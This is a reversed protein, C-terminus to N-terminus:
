LEPLCGLARSRSIPRPSEHWIWDEGEGEAGESDTEGRGAGTERRLEGILWDLGSAM